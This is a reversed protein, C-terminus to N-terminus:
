IFTVDSIIFNVLKLRVECTRPVKKTKLKKKLLFYLKFNNIFYLVGPKWLAWRKKHLSYPTKRIFYIIAYHM